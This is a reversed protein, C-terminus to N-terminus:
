EDDEENALYDDLAAQIEAMQAATKPDAARPNKAPVYDMCHMCVAQSVSGDHDIVDATFRDHSGLRCLLSQWAWKIRWLRPLPSDSV